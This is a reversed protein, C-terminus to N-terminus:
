PQLSKLSHSSHKENPRFSIHSITKRLSKLCSSTNRIPQLFLGLWNHYQLVAGISDSSALQLLVHQRETLELNRLVLHSTIVQMLLLLCKIEFLDKECIQRQVATAKTSRTRPLTHLM